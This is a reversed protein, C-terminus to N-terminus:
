LVHGFYEPLREQNLEHSAKWWCAPYPMDVFRRDPMHRETVPVYNDSYGPHGTTGLIGAFGFLAVLRDREAKNSKLVGPLRAQVAASTTEAPAATIADILDHFIRVDEAGPPPITELLFQGLDFAAYGPHDHRVGGWKFREFNLLSLDQERQGAYMGCVGCSQGAPPEAHHPMHQFVVYSGFASRWDLRRTSLSALFADAVRRRNLRQVLAAIEAQVSAHELMVPDFMAGKSKAYEFDEGSAGRMAEPKWGAPSWFADMLIKLARKDM